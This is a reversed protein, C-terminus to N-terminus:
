SEKPILQIRTVVVRAAEDSTLVVKLFIAHADEEDKAYVTFYSEVADGPWRFYVRFRKM